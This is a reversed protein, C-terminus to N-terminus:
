KPNYFRVVVKILYENKNAIFAPDANLNHVRSSIKQSLLDTGKKKILRSDEM